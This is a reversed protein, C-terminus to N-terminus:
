KRAHIYLRVVILTIETFVFLTLAVRAKQPNAELEVSASQRYVKTKGIPMLRTFFFLTENDHVSHPVDSPAYIM